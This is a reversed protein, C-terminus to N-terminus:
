IIHLSHLPPNFPISPTIRSTQSLHHAVIAFLYRQTTLAPFELRALPAVGECVPSCGHDFRAGCKRIPEFDPQTAASGGLFFPM